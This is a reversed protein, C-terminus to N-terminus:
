PQEGKGMVADVSWDKHKARLRSLEGALKARSSALAENEAKLQDREGKLEVVMELLAEGDSNMDADLANGIAGMDMCAALLMRQNRENEAILALVAGPGCAAIFEADPISFYPRKFCEATYWRGEGVEGGWNKAESAARKLETYDTM